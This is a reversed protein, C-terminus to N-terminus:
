SKTKSANRLFVRLCSFARSTSPENSFCRFWNMFSNKAQSRFANNKRRAETCGQVSGKNTIERKQNQQNQPTRQPARKSGGHLYWQDTDMGALPGDVTRLEM